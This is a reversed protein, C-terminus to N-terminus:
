FFIFNTSVSSSNNHNTPKIRRIRKVGGKRKRGRWELGQHNQNQEPLFLWQYEVPFVSSKKKKINRMGCDKEGLRWCYSWSDKYNQLFNYHRHEFSPSLGQHSLPLTNAKPGSPQPTLSKSDILIIHSYHLLVFLRHGSVLFDRKVCSLM